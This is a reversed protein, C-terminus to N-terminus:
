EVCHLRSMSPNVYPLTSAVSQAFCMMMNSHRERVERKRREKKRRLSKEAMFELWKKYPLFCWCSPPWRSHPWVLIFVSMFLTLICNPWQITTTLLALISFVWHLYCLYWKICDMLNPIKSNVIVFQINVTLILFLFNVFIIYIQVMFYLKICETM